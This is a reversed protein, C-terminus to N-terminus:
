INEFAQDGAGIKGYTIRTILRQDTESVRAHESCIIFSQFLDPDELGVAGDADTAYDLNTTGKYM